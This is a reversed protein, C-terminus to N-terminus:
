NGSCPFLIRFLRNWRGEPDILINGFVLDYDSVEMEQHTRIKQVYEEFLKDFGAQDGAELRDDLLEELTSGELYELRACPLGDPQRVLECRNM